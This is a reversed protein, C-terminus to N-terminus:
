ARREQNVRPGTFPRGTVVLFAADLAREIDAYTIPKTTM